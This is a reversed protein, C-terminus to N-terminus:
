LVDHAQMPEIVPGQPVGSVAEAMQSLVNIHVHFILWAVAYPMEVAQPSAVKVQLLSPLMPTVTSRTLSSTKKGRM